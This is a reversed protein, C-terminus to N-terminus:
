KEMFALVEKYPLKGGFLDLASGITVHLNGRGLSKITELDKYVDSENIKEVESADGAFVVSPVSLFLMVFLQRM